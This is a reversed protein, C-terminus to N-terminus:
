AIATQPRVRAVEDAKEPWQCAAEAEEFAAGSVLFHTNFANKTWACELLITTVSVGKAELAFPLNSM